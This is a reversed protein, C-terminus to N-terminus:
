RAANFRDEFSDSTGAYRGAFDSPGQNLFPSFGLRRAGMQEAFLRKETERRAIRSQTVAAADTMMDLPEWRYRKGPGGFVQDQGKEDTIFVQYSPPVNAPGDADAAMKIPRTKDFSAAERQTQADAAIGKLTWGPIVSQGAEGTVMTQRAGHVATIEAELQNVMWKHDKTLPDTPYFTEPANKMLKRFDGGGMLSTPQWQASIREAALIQANGPDVGYIRAVKVARKYDEAMARGAISDNNIVDRPLKGHIGPVNRQWWGGLADAVNQPSWSKLEEDIAGGEKARAEAYSPDDAAAMKKARLEPDVGQLGKWGMLRDATHGGYKADFDQANMGWLHDLAMGAADLRAPINSNFMGTLAAKVPESTLTARYNDSTLTTRMTALFDAAQKPDGAQLVTALKKAEDGMIVPLAGTNPVHQNIIGTDRQRKALEGADDAKFTLPGPAGTWGSAAAEARPNDRFREDHAKAIAEFHDLTDAQMATLGKSRQEAIWAKTNDFTEGPPRANHMDYAALWPQAKELLDERGARRAQNAFDLVDDPQIATGERFNKEMRGFATEADKGVQTTLTKTLTQFQSGAFNSSALDVKGGEILGGTAGGSRADAMEIHWPEHAMPFKLGYKEANAHMWQRAADTEFRLDAANGKEHQSHGPPAVWKRAAEESGYKQVADAFLKAQHEPTRMGSFISVGARVEPPADEMMRDFSSKLRFHPVVGAQMEGLAQARGAPGAQLLNKALPYMEKFEDLAGISRKDKLDEARQRLNNYEAVPFETGPKELGLKVFGGVAKRHEQIAEHDGAALNRLHSLGESVGHDRQAATLNKPAGEGWMGDILSQTAKNIDKDDLFQRQVKGIVEQVKDHSFAENIELDAREKSFRFRPDAQLENWLTARNKALSLYDPTETGGQRALSSMQENIDKIRAQYTQLAEATNHSNTEILSSRLNRQADTNLFDGVAGRLHPDEIKGLIGQSYETAAAQFGDPDNQHKLRLALMDTEVKPQIQALQTIKAARAYNEAAKGVIFPNSTTDVILSGDDATRVSKRGADEGARTALPEAIDELAGGAKGLAEAFSRFPAAVEGGSLNAHPTQATVIPTEPVLDAM